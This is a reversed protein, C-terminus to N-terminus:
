GIEIAVKLLQLLQFPHLQIIGLSEKIHRRCSSEHLAQGLQGSKVFRQEHHVSSVLVIEKAQVIPGECNALGFLDNRIDHIGNCVEDHYALRKQVANLLQM